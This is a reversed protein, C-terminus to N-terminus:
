SIAPEAAVLTFTFAREGPLMAGSFQIEGGSTGYTCSISKGSGGTPTWALSTASNLQGELASVAAAEVANIATIYATTDEFAVSRILVEGSFTIIRAAYFKPHVIGGDSQGQDDIEARIPRGDLGVINGNDGIMLTDTTDTANNNITLGAFTYTCCYDAM